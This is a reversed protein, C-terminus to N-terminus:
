HDDSAKQITPEVLQLVFNRVQTEFQYFDLGLNRNQDLKDFIEKATSNM